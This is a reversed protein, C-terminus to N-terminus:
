SIWLHAYLVMLSMFLPLRNTSPLKVVYRYILDVAPVATPSPLTSERFQERCHMKWAPPVKMTGYGVVVVEDLTEADESLTLNFSTQGKVQVELTKYGIFSVQITGNAPVDSLTFNGDMDTITGNTTGKLVISAGIVTEGNTDTVTGKIKGTQQSSYTPEPENTAHAVHSGSLLVACIMIAILSKRNGYFIWM